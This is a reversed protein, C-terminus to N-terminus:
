SYAQQQAVSARGIIIIIIIIFDLISSGPPGSL